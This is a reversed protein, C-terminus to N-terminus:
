KPLFRLCLNKDAYTQPRRTPSANLAVVRGDKELAALVKKHHSLHFPSKRDCVVFQEIEKCTAEQGAFRDILLRRLHERNPEKGFLAIQNPDTADSFAFAGSEDAKWMSEKMKLLGLDSNTGFFLFYDTRNVRNQMKFSRVHKAEGELQRQYLDHLCRERESPKGAHLCARWDTCGFLEDFNDPQHEHSLFRNIEEFMFTILVECSQARLIKRVYEFPIKFGFPDIFVFTPPRSRGSKSYQEWVEPFAEQFKRKPHVKHTINSPLKLKEIESALYDAREQDLEIFHFDLKAHAPISQEIAAKMAIIPSGEEGGVYRGPGAFGDIFVVQPFGGKTLIPIWAQLYRRLIAHKAATHPELEWITTDPQM